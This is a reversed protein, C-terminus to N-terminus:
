TKGWWSDCRQVLNNLSNEIKLRLGELDENSATEPVMIPEGFIMVLPSFPLPIMFRDWSAFFKCRKAGYAFPLVPVGTAQAIKLTGMKLKRAPGRPGDGLMGACVEPRVRMIAILENMATAGGRSSSGRVSAFGLHRAAGAVLDGDSSRSIMITIPRRYRLFYLNLLRQHWTVYVCGRGAGAWEAELEGDVVKIASCSKGWGAILLAVTGPLLRLVRSKLRRSLSLHSAM